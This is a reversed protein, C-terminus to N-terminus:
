SEAQAIKEKLRQVLTEYSSRKLVDQFQAYYNKVISVGEIIIDYVLWEGNKKKLRYFIPLEENRATSVVKTKVIAYKDKTKEGEFVVEEGAYSEIRDIYSIKMLARFLGVFQEKEEPAREEWARALARRAMEEWDFHRDAIVMIKRVCETKEGDPNKCFDNLVRTIEGTAQRIKETPTEEGSFVISGSASLLVILAAVFVKGVSCRM